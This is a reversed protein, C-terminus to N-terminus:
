AALQLDLSFYDQQKRKARTGEIGANSLEGIAATTTEVTQGAQHASTSVYSMAEGMGKFDTATQDAAFAMANTVRRTHEVMTAAHRSRLGFADVASSVNKVVDGYDDGSARAAQLMSKMSGISETATYGRKVLETYQDAVEKQSFGYEKSYRTADREMESMHGVEKRADAANKAGTQLLNRTTVWSQQLTAAMQVSKGLGAGLATFAAGAMMAGNRVSSAWARTHSTSAKIRTDFNNVGRALGSFWSDGHVSKVAIGLRHVSVAAEATRSTQKQLESTTQIIGNRYGSTDVKAKNLSNSLNNVAKQADRYEDSAKGHVALMETETKKASALQEKYSAISQKGHEYNGSLRTIESQLRKTQSIEATYQNKALDRQKVLAQVHSKTTLTAAGEEKLLASYSRMATEMGASVSRTQELSANYLRQQQEAAQQQRVLRAIANRSNEIKNVLSLHRKEEDNLQKNYKEIDEKSANTSNRLTELKQKTEEISAPLNRMDRQAHEIVAQYGEIAKGSYQIKQSLASFTNGYAMSENSTARMIRNLTNAEHSLKLLTQSMGHDDLDISFRYGEIAAM